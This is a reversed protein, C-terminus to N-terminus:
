NANANKVILEDVRHLRRKGRLVNLSPYAGTSDNIHFWNNILQNISDNVVYLAIYIVKETGDEYITTEWNGNEDPVIPNSPYKPWFQIGLSDKAEIVLWPHQNKDLNFLTGKCTISRNITERSGPSLIKGQTVKPLTTPTIKQRSFYWWGFIIILICAGLAVLLFPFTPNNKKEFFKKLEEFSLDKLDDLQLTETSYRNFFDAIRKLNEKGEETDFKYDQQLITDWDKPSIKLHKAVENIEIEIIEETISKIKKSLNVWNELRRYPENKLQSGSITLNIKKSLIAAIDELLVKDNIPDLNNTSKLTRSMKVPSIRLDTALEKQQMGILALLGKIKKTDTMM